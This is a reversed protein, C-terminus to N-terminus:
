RGNNQGPVARHFAQEILGRQEIKHSASSGTAPSSSEPRSITLLPFRDYISEGFRLRVHNLAGMNEPEEQVWLVPTGRGYASLATRIDQEPFPYLQEVRVIAVDDRKHEQRYGDLDYYVKGCCLLVRKVASADPVYNDPIVRHFAGQSLERLESTCSPHRLLSKPSMVVLPKRISRVIQRRLCHFLQAPTTLNVVCINDEAAIQLFRELRASSHEPGQGEFGHPLLIVLHNLKDWKDESTSIFQDFIVQGVNAFDGFQAEWVVLNDPSDLCFGFEYGLMATETLPSNWVQFRAQEDAISNLPIFPEATDHDFLIAHRHSFTGRAVDQGTLRVPAGQTLLTAYALNEATGWDLSTKGESTEKRRQLVLRKLKPHCQFSDPVSGLRLLLKKLEEEPVATSVDPVALDKGGRYNAWLGRNTELEQHALYDFKPDRARELEKELHERREVAIAEAEETTVEGWGVLHQLYGERVSVKDRIQRYMRPQTVTPDDGENHGLRRFCYMDIVVDKKFQHRFEMALWTAQAVAEPDEGNVHFIPIQLMKAVDTAYHSSRSQEPGTTFGIQNNLIIHLTGGTRFGPIESMNLLEQVVGQGAFAADGHIIVGMCQTFNETMRDQRSRVRGLVVPGVFELHSPNFCLTLGIDHGRETTWKSSLGLHYKVDGRGFSRHPDNDDFESFVLAPSKGMINAMVNLRGRHAMGLVIDNVGHDGANEFALDLLPILSEGGELGFRKMGVYKKALFEEFISADTLRTLIRLQSERDLHLKNKTKEMKEQIWQKPEPDDIHMYQVGIYGCYTSRLLDLIERLSLMEYGLSSASFRLDLDKESLGYHALELESFSESQRGLPDLKAIRHGRVRYARILQDVKEQKFIDVGGTASAGGARGNGRAAFLSSPEFNPEVRYSPGGNKSMEQRSFYDRWEQSVSNPDALMAEYVQECFALNDPNIM